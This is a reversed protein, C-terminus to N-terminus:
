SRLYPNLARIHQRNEENEELKLRKKHKAAKLSQDLGGKIGQQHLVETGM